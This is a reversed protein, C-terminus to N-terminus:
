TCEFLMICYCMQVGQVKNDKGRNVKKKNEERLVHHCCAHAIIGLERKHLSMAWSSGSYKRLCAFGEARVSSYTCSM